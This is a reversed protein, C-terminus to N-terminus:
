LQVCVSFNMLIVTDYLPTWRIEVFDIFTKVFPVHSVRACHKEDTPQLARELPGYM